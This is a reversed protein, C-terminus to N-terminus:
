PHLGVAGAPTPPSPDPNAPLGEKCLLRQLKAAPMRLQVITGGDDAPSEGVVGAAAYLAARLRGQTPALHYSRCVMDDALREGLAALLLPIGAGTRASLWVASPAGSADRDLRPQPEESADIKNFVCLTPVDAAGIEALVEAVCRAQHEWDPNAADVVHLILDAQTVEELTARFAAVLQHPLQSVFGVTDAVLATGLGPVAFRRLRPDLTAFVQDAAFTDAATLANFLTSKGANTYGALAVTPTTGRRRAARGQARRKHVLALKREIGAIRDRVLRRDTELQTEGPGRLGIGGQQRALNLTRGVLRPLLHRLQALEVQLKGEHTRARRAFIDLILGTRDVVRCGIARELNREQSPSLSHDFIAVTAGTDAVLQRLEVVKGSGIFTGAHPVSRRGTLEAAPAGGAARVLETFEQWNRTERGQDLEIAVLVATEIIESGPRTL